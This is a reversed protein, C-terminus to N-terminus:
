TPFSEQPKDLGILAPGAKLNSWTAWCKDQQTKFTELSPSEVIFEAVQYIGQGVSHM